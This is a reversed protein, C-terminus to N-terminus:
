MSGGPLLKAVPRSPAGAARTKPPGASQGISPALRPSRGSPADQVCPPGKGGSTRGQTRGGGAWTERQTVNTNNSLATTFCKDSASLLRVASLSGLPVRPNRRCQQDGMLRAAPRLRQPQAEFGGEALLIPTKRRGGGEAEWRWSSRAQVLHCWGLCAGGNA